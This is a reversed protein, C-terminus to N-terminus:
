YKIDFNEMMQKLMDPNNSYHTYTSHYYLGDEHTSWSKEFGRITGEEDVAVRTVIEQSDESDDKEAYACCACNGDCDSEEKVEEKGGFDYAVEYLENCVVDKLADPNCDDAVFVCTSETYLYRNHEKQYAKECWVNMANDLTVLYEKDYLDFEEPEICIHYPMIDDYVLLEKLVDIANDYKGIFTVDEDGDLIRGYMMVAVDAMDEIIIRNKEM